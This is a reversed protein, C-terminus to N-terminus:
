KGGIIRSVATAVQQALADCEERTNAEAYVRVVDETGSPRVFSRGKTVTAVADNIADQMGKPAICQREADTTVVVTRDPVSVKLLRNPLDEYMKTWEIMGMKRHLLIAEVFLLDSVADGVTQNILDVAARLDDSPGAAIADQAAQSFLITGHGNAEFYVGVDYELAMHHLHKVGTKACSVPIGCSSLYETSGGNAYATQVIGIQLDLGAEKIKEDLWAACLAAIRDGDLMQFQGDISTFFMLRDADGDFSACQKGDSCTMGPPASQTTKVFDAGCLENLQGDGTNVLTANIPNVDQPMASLIGQFGQFGVGNACDVTVQAPETAGSSRYLEAFANALKSNYGDTTPEGYGADNSCRVMYHLQPTTLLGFDVVTGGLDEVGDVAAARLSPGSPRTDIAILVRASAKSDVGGREAINKLVSEVEDDPCNALETAYGEWSAELMEGFPDVLKVGNDGVPNHSATIMLGIAAGGKSRSRLAALLGVRYLVVDLTDASTRFGATGYSFHKGLSPHKAIGNM